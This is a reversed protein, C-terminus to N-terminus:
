QREFIKDAASVQTPVGARGGIFCNNLTVDVANEISISSHASNCEVGNLHIDRVPLSKVGQIVIAAHFVSDATLTDVCINGIRTFKDNGAGEGAYSATVYFLDEVNGFRCNNVWVNEVFGGRDPNTKLYIGRKCYGAADCNEIIVNRIGGSLESGLVVAHLGKFHCNRIVINQCPPTSALRGDNDRGSKIAINDDGNDFWIDEILIDKSSEPDIGDNNVLKADYRIGRCIINQSKLLHVCWFPSNVIKVDSITVNKCNYFQILHPRLYDGNGFVRSEFPTEEHNLRRSRAQAPKQLPRWTAFTTIANGDITGSGTIAVNEANFARIMPSYNRCYTGEWSTDVIPYLAPNPDFLLKAGEMLHLEVGSLLNVPGGILYTGDPVIVVGGGRRSTQGIAKEFARRCDHRGDGRAGFKVVTVSDPRIGAGTINSLISDRLSIFNTAAVSMSALAAVLILSLRKM